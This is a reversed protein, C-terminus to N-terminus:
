SKSDGVLGQGFRGWKETKKSSTPGVTRGKWVAKVDGTDDLPGKKGKKNRLAEAAGM